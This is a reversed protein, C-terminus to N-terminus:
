LAGVRWHPASSLDLLRSVGALQLAVGELSLMLEPTPPTTHRSMLQLTGILQAGDSIPVLVASGMGEGAAAKLLPDEATELDVFSTAHTPPHQPNGGDAPLKQRHQWVRTEFTSSTTDEAIWMAVCGMLKRRKDPCWAVVADWGGECGVVKVTEKLATRWDEVATLAVSLARQSAPQWVPSGPTVPDIPPAAGNRRSARTENAVAVIEGRELGDQAASLEARLSEVTEREAEAAALAVGAQRTAEEASAAAEEAIVSQEQLATEALEARVQARELEERVTTLERRLLEVTESEAALMSSWEAAQGQADDLGAIREALTSAERRAQESAAEAQEARARQQEASSRERDAQSRAQELEESTPREALEGRAGELEAKLIALDGRLREVTQQEVTLVGSSEAIEAEAARELVGIREALASAERRAEEGAAEAGEARSREQEARSREEETRLREQELEEPAPRESLERRTAELEDSLEALERRLSGAAQKEATLADSAAAAEDRFRRVDSRAQALASKSEAEAMEARARVSALAANAREARWREQELEDHTLAQAAAESAARRVQEIEQEATRLEGRLMEVTRQEKVLAANTTALEAQAQEATLKAKHAEAREAELQAPTPAECAAAQYRELEERSAALETRLTEAIEREGALADAGAAEARDARSREIERERDLENVRAEARALSEELEASRAREGTISRLLEQGRRAAVVSAERLVMVQRREEALEHDLRASTELAADLEAALAAFQDGDTAITEGGALPRESSVVDSRSLPMLGWEAILEARIRSEDSRRWRDLRMFKRCESRAVEARALEAALGCVASPKGHVDRLAFRVVAFAPLDGAADVMYELELPEKTPRGHGQLRVREISEGPELEADTKGCVRDASTGLQELYQRNVRLYRGGLDKLWFIAPSADIAADLLPDLSAGPDDHPPRAITLLACRQGDADTVAAVDLSTWGLMASAYSAERSIVTQIERAHAALFAEAEGGCDLFLATAREMM